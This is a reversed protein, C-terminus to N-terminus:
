NVVKGIALIRIEFTSGTSSYASAAESYVDYTPTLSSTFESDFTGGLAPYARFGISYSVVTPSNSVFGMVQPSVFLPYRTGGNDVWGMGSVVPFELESVISADLLTTKTNTQGAHIDTYDYDYIPSAGEEHYYLGFYENMRVGRLVYNTIYIDSEGLSDKGLILTGAGLTRLLSPELNLLRQTTIISDGLKTLQDSQIIYNSNYSAQSTANTVLTITDSSLPFTSTEGKMYDSEIMVVEFDVEYIAIISGASAPTIQLTFNINNRIDSRRFYTEDARRDFYTEFTTVASTASITKEDITTGDFLAITLDIDAGSTIEVRTTVKIYEITFEPNGLNANDSDEIDYFENIALTDTGSGDYECFTANNNDFLNSTNSWNTGTIAAGTLNVTTM